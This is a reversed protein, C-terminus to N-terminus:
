PATGAGGGGTGGAGRGGGGRAGGRGGGVGGGGGIRGFGGGGIGFGGAGTTTTTDQRASVTGTVVVEGESLGGQIEALGNSVLGVTVPVASPTGTADLVLVSYNGTAGRLAVSPVTLVDSASATTVSAQVSMGVRVSAPPDTLAITVAYTVVGGASSSVAQPAISKVVGDVTAGVATVTVTAPQQIALSPLDTETFDAVVQLDTGQITIAYGSPALSGAAVNVAVVTGAVPSAIQAMALKKQETALANQATEVAAQDATIQSAAVPAVKTDYSHQAATVGQTAQQVQASASQNARTANLQANRLALGTSAIAQLDAQLTVSSPQVKLDYAHQAAVLGDQTAAVQNQAAQLAQGAKQQAATLANQAATVAAQASRLAEDAKLQAAKLSSTATDVQDQAQQNSAGAKQQTSTLAASAQDIAAQDAAVKTPDAKGTPPNADRNFQDNADQFALQAAAIATDNQARTSEQNQEAATVAAQAQDLAIQNSAQTDSVGQQATAIAANAADISEQDTARTTTVNEQATKFALSASTVGDQAQAITSSDPGKKDTAYQRQANALQLQAQEISLNGGAATSAASQEASSASLRASTISDQASARIDAPVGAKDTALKANAVDLNAQATAVAVKLDSTDAEALIDGAKVTAGPTVNVASVLYSGGGSGSNSGGGSGASTLLSPPSGFALGYQTAVGVTGTAVATQEVNGRTVNATLYQSASAASPGMGLVAYAGAGLGVALLAVIALVKFM